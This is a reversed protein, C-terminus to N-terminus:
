FHADIPQGNEDTALFAYGYKLINFHNQHPLTAIPVIHLTVSGNVPMAGAPIYIQTGDALGISQAQSADFTVVVPSPKAHPGNLVLGQVESGSGLSVEANGFWYQSGTEFAAGLHWTTNSVVGLSYVGSAQGSVGGVSVPFTGKVFGGDDSWAWVLAKGGTTTNSVTLSGSITADSVQFQLVHGGSTSGPPAQVPVEKPRIWNTGPISAGLTYKGYPVALSFSGDLRSLSRLDLDQVGLGIGRATMTAGALPSGDPAKVTGTILADKQLVPLAVGVTKGAPVPINRAEESKVYGSAPDVRYNLHWLGAAVDLHYSGNGPDIADGAWSGDSWAGVMGHVGSVVLQTRTNWLAGAIAADELRLTMTVTTSVGAGVTVSKDSASMYPSDAPLVAAVTYTGAPVHIEFAGNDIPAGNQISLDGTNRASAWGSIDTLPNGSADVMIGSITADASILTFDIDSVTGGSALTVSQGGGTYLYAQDPGPAPQIHWAGAAVPLIYEGDPGSTTRLSGPIGDRWAALPIGSVGSGAGDTVTGTIAADRALLTLVGLNYTGNPAVNIPDVAPGLYAPEDPHVDVKYGGNPVALSFSGDPNMTTHVGVGEDNHLSITVTFPPTTVGDPM